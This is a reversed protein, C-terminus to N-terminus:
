VTRPCRSTQGDSPSLGRRSRHAKAALLQMANVSAHAGSDM